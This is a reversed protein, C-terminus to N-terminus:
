AIIKFRMQICILFVKEMSVVSEEREIERGGEKEGDRM